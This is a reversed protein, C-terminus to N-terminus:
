INLTRLLEKKEETLDEPMQLNLKFIFDGMKQTKAGIVGKGSHVVEEYPKTLPKIVLEDVGTPTEVIVKDGLVLQTYTVPIDFVINGTDKEYNPLDKVKLKVVLRGREGGNIGEYGYNKYKIEKGDYSNPPVEIKVKITRKTKGAGGCDVCKSDTDERHLCDPCPKRTTAKDGLPSITTVEYVRTGNCTQCVNNHDIIVGKGNCPKCTEEHEFSTFKTAGNLAEAMTIDLYIVRDKGKHAAKLDTRTKFIDSFQPQNRGITEERKLEEDYIAREETNSLTKYAHSIEEFEQQATPSPNRDPHKEMALRRYAKKIEDPTAEQSLNLIEYYTKEM